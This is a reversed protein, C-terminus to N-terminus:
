GKSLISAPAQDDDRGLFGTAHAVTARARDAIGQFSKCVDVVSDEIQKSTQQLQVSMKGLHPLYRALEAEVDSSGAPHSNAHFPAGGGSRSETYEFM